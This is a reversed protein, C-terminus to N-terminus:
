ANSATSEYSEKPFNFNGYESLGYKILALDYARGACHECKFNGLHIRKKNIKIYSIWRNKTNSWSVGIYKSSCKSYTKIRNYCNQTPTVERLNEIRDDSRDRNIHDVIEPIYGYTMYWHLRSSRINKSKGCLTVQIIRYGSLHIVGALQDKKATHSRYKNWYPNGDKWYINSALKKYYKEEIM